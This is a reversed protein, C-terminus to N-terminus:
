NERRSDELAGCLKCEKSFVSSQQTRQRLYAGCDQITTGCLKVYNRETFGGPTDEMGPYRNITRCTAKHLVAYESDIARRLNVVFGKPNRRLWELYRSDDNEIVIAM